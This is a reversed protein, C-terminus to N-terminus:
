AHNPPRGAFMAARSVYDLTLITVPPRGKRGHAEPLIRVPVGVAVHDNPVDDLVVANAGISVRNGIRIKGLVKAGVGIKVDDGLVPVDHERRRSGIMVKHRITCNRGIVTEPHLVIGGFHWIRLGPGIRRRRPLDIGTLLRLISYPLVAVIKFFMRLPRCRLSDGWRRFRYDCMGLALTRVM